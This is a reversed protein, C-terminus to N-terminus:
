EETRFVTGKSPETGLMIIVIIIIICRYSGTIQIKAVISSRSNGNEPVCLCM